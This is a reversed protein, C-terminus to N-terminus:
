GAWGANHRAPLQKGCTRAAAAALQPNSLIEAAVEDFAMLKRLQADTIVQERYKQRASYHVITYELFLALHSFLM